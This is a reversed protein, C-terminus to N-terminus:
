KITVDNGRDSYIAGGYVSAHNNTFVCNTIETSVNQNTIYIAAGNQASNDSFTCNNIKLINNNTIVSSTGNTFTLDSINLNGNDTLTM